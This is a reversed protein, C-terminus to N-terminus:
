VEYVDNLYEVIDASEFLSVGTNPDELFPVQFRGFKRWFENRKVSGRAATKYIHPLELEVLRERVVKVFPSADYGWLTLSQKPQKSEVFNVGKGMRPLRSLSASITTVFSPQLTFPITEGEEGYTEFLYAIIDDSEYMQVGTNADVLFPFQAKGGLNLVKPRFTPGGKPCPFMEVDLDLVAVAERVKQCFPCGEFEYLSILKDPRRTRKLGQEKVTYGLVTAFTYADEQAEAIEAKYGGVLASSGFRLALSVGGGLVDPLNGNVKFRTPVNVQYNKTKQPLQSSLVTGFLLLFVVLAM